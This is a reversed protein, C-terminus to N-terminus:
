EVRVMQYGFHAMLAEDLHANILPLVTPDLKSRWREELYYSRYDGFRKDPEPKTSEDVNQFHARKRPLDFAQALGAIVTEPDCVLDEYRLNHACAARGLNLYSRNKENWLVVPNAYGGPSNERGVAPWRAQVFDAFSAATHGHYPRRHLSLLWAYPNKTLTIFLVDEVALRWLQEPSPAMAHKWGLNRRYSARFYLDRAAENSGFLKRLVWPAAGDLLEVDLNRVLLKALYRTGTNREGYIKVKRPKVM